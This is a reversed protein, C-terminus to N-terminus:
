YTNQGGFCLQNSQDQTQHSFVPVECQALLDSTKSGAAENFGCAGTAAFKRGSQMYEPPSAPLHDQVNTDAKSFMLYAVARDIANSKSEGTEM